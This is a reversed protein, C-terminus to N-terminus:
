KALQTRLVSTLDGAERREAADLGKATELAKAFLRAAHAPGQEQVLNRLSALRREDGAGEKERESAAAM